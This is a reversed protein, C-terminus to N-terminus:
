KRYDRQYDQAYVGLKIWNIDPVIEQLLAEELQAVPGNILERRARGRYRVEPHADELQQRITRRDQRAQIWLKEYIERMAPDEKQLNRYGKNQSYMAGHYWRLVFAKNIELDEKPDKLQCYGVLKGLLQHVRQNNEMVDYLDM